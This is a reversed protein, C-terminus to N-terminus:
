VPGNHHEGRDLFVRIDLTWEEVEVVHCRRPVSFQGLEIRREVILKDVIGIAEERLQGWEAQSLNFPGLHSSQQRGSLSLLLENGFFLNAEFGHM